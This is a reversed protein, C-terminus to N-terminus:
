QIDIEMNIMVMNLGIAKATRLLYKIEKKMMNMYHGITIIVKM